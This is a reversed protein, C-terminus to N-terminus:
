QNIGLMQVEFILVANPPIVGSVGQEGYAFVSPIILKRVEGVKMGAVGLDWGPIVQGAGLTFSFPQGRDVSSDFKTGDELTGVYHVSVTDGNKAGEGKGQQLIQAMIKPEGADAAATQGNASQSDDSRAGNAGAVSAKDMNFDVGEVARKGGIIKSIFYVGSAIVSLVVVIPIIKKM